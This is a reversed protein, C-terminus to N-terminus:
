SYIHCFKKRRHEDWRKQRLAKRRWYRKLPISATRYDKRSMASLYGYFKRVWEEATLRKDNQVRLLKEIRLDIRREMRKQQEPTLPPILGLAQAEALQNLWSEKLFIM